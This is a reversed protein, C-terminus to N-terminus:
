RNSESFVTSFREVQSGSSASFRRATREVALGVSVWDGLIVTNFISLVAKIKLEEVGFFFFKVGAKFILDFGVKLAVLNLTGEKEDGESKVGGLRIVLSSGSVSIGRVGASVLKVLFLGSKFTSGLGKVLRSFRAFNLHFFYSGLNALVGGGVEVEL